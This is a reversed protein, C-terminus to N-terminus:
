AARSRARRRNSRVQVAIHLLADRSAALSSASAEPEDWTIKLAVPARSAFVSSARPSSASMSAIGDGPCTEGAAPMASKWCSALGPTSASTLLPTETAPVIQGDVIGTIQEGPKALSAM